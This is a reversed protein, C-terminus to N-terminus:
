LVRGISVVEKLSLLRGSIGLLGSLRLGFGGSSLVTVPSGAVHVVGHAYSTTM